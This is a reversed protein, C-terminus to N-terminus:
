CGCIRGTFVLWGVAAEGVLEGFAEESGQGGPIVSSDDLKAACYITMADVRQYSGVISVRSYKHIGTGVFAGVLGLVQPQHQAAAVQEASLVRRYPYGRPREVVINGM